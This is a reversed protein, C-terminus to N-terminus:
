KGSQSHWSESQTTHFQTLRVRVLKLSKHKHCYVSITCIYICSAKLCLNSYGPIRFQSESQDHLIPPFFKFFLLTNSSRFCQYRSHHFTSYAMAGHLEFSRGTSDVYAVRFKERLHDEARYQNMSRLLLSTLSASAPTVLAPLPYM